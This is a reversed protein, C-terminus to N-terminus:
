RSFQLLLMAEVANTLKFGGIRFSITMSFDIDTEMIIKTQVSLNFLRHPLDLQIDSNPNM